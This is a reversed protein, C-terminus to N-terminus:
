YSNLNITLNAYPPVSEFVDRLTEGYRIPVESMKSQQILLYCGISVSFSCNHCIESLLYTAEESVDTSNCILSTLSGLVIQKSLPHKCSFVPVPALKM